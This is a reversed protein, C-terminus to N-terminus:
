FGRLPMGAGRRLWNDAPYHATGDIVHLSYAQRSVSSRNPGSYHPLLGHLVVLSGKRTELPVLRDTPWPSDDFSAMALGGDATRSFRAKLGARHGGPIVRLCGNAVSADELAFWFGVVSAPETYLFTADQHCGVEGGIGPQKFIYMSQLLLPEAIGLDAAVAALAPTRSFARFTPDLDHMAHGIKNIARKIPVALRGDRDVAQEEFFFRIKDGSQLFYADSPRRDADTSFVTLPAGPAFGAVLDAARAILRDCADAAVFGEVVLYGDRRYSELQDERLAM